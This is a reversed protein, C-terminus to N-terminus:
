LDATGPLGANIFSRRSGHVFPSASVALTLREPALSFKAKVYQHNIMLEM